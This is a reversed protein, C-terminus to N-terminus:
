KMLQMCVPCVGIVSPNAPRRTTSSSSAASLEIFFSLTLEYMHCGSVLGTGTPAYGAVHPEALIHDNIVEHIQVAARDAVARLDPGKDLNLFTRHDAGVALDGTVCEDTLAHRNLVAYENSVVNNEDVIAIRSRCGLFSM